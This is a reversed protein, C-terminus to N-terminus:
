NINHCIKALVIHSLYTKMMKPEWPELLGGLPAYVFGLFGLIIAEIM